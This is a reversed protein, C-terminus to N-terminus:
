GCGKYGIADGITSKVAAAPDAIAEAIDRGLRTADAVSRAALELFHQFDLDHLNGGLSGLEDCYKLCPMEEIAKVEQQLQKGQAQAFTLLQQFLQDTYEQEQKGIAQAYAVARGFQQETYQQEARGQAQAFSLLQEYIRDAYNTEQGFLQRAYDQEQQALQEAYRADAQALQEAFQAEQAAQQQEYAIAQGFLQQAYRMAAGIAGSAWNHEGVTLGQAYVEAGYVWGAVLDQLWRVNSPITEYVIKVTAKHLDDVGHYLGGHIRDLSRAFGRVGQSLYGAEQNVTGQIQQWVNWLLGDVRGALWGGIGFPIQQVLRHVPEMIQWLSWGKIHASTGVAAGGIDPLGPGPPVLVGGTPWPGRGVQLWGGWTSWNSSNGQLEGWAWSADQFGGGQPAGAAGGGQSGGGSGAAVGPPLIFGEVDFMSSNREDYQDWGVYNMERVRFSNDGYVAVVLGVHGYISYASSSGYVCVAGVTPRDTTSFGARQASGLWDAANGWGEGVWPAQECVGWTCEGFYYSDCRGM